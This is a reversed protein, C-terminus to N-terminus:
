SNGKKSPTAGGMACGWDPPKREIATFRRYKTAQRTNKGCIDFTLRLDQWAPESHLITFTLYGLFDFAEQRAQKVTTKRENLELGMVTFWSRIISGRKPHTAIVRRSM